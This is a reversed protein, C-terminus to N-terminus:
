DNAVVQCAQQYQQNMMDEAAKLFIFGFQQQIDADSLNIQGSGISQMFSSFPPLKKIEEDQLVPLDSSGQSALAIFNVGYYVHVFIRMLYYKAKEKDTAERGLYYTLFSASLDENYFYFWTACCALDFYFSQPSATQWDVLIYDKGNFLVNAPNLDGHCSRMDDADYLFSEMSKIEQMCKKIIAQQMHESSLNQHFYAVIEVVSKWEQFSHSDHLNRIVTAFKEILAPSAEPFQKSEVYQMLILGHEANTYYVEPSVGQKSVAAMIKYNRVLDFNDDHIDELKIVYLKNKSKIKYVPADTMGGNLLSIPEWDNIDLGKKVAFNIREIDEIPLESKNM